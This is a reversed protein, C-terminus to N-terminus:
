EQVLYYLLTGINIRKAEINGRYPNNHFIFLSSPSPMQMKDIMYLFISKSYREQDESLEAVTVIGKRYVYFAADLERPDLKNDEDVQDFRVFTSEINLLAGVLLVLDRKAMPISEDDIDRAFGEVARIFQAVETPEAKNLYQNLKPMYRGLKLENMLLKFFAPRYCDTAFSPDKDTGRNECIGEYALMLQSQIEVSVIVMSLYEVAEDIDISGNGNSRSQFLDSLLLMNRAFTEIKKTWLGMPELLPKFQKMMTDIEEINLMYQGDEQHGYAKFLLGTIHKFILNLNFGRRTRIIDTQYYQLNNEDLFYHYKSFVHKFDNKFNFIRTKSFNKYSEHHRYALSKVLKKSNFENPYLDMTNESLYLTEILTKIESFIARFEKYLVVEQHGGFIKAKITPFGAIVGEFFSMNDEKVFVKLSSLNKTLFAIEFDDGHHLVAQIKNLTNLSFEYWQRASHEEKAFLKVDFASLAMDKLKPLIRDVELPSLTAAKGGVMQPKLLMISKALQMDKKDLSWSESLESLFRDLGIEEPLQSPDIMTNLKAAWSSLETEFFERAVPVSSALGQDVKSWTLFSELYVKTYLKLLKLDKYSLAGDISKATLLHRKASLATEYVLNEKGQGGIYRSLFVIDEYNVKESGIQKFVLDLRELIFSARKQQTDLNYDKYYLVDFALASIDEMRSLLQKIEDCSLISRDKGFILSKLVEILQIHEHSLDMKDFKSSLERLTESLNIQSSKSEPIVQLAYSALNTLGSIFDSRLAELSIEGNHYRKFSQNIQAANINASALLKFLRKMGETSIKDQSDDIFIFNVKFLLSLGDMIKHSNDPFFDEIFVSLEKKSIADADARKVYRSFQEFNYELCEIQKHIDSEFILAYSDPDIVCGGSLESNQYSDTNEVPKDNVFGCSLLGLCGIIPLFKSLLNRLKHFRM